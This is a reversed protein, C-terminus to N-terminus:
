LAFPEFVKLGWETGVSQKNLKSKKKKRESRFISRKKQKTTQVKKLVTPDNGVGMRSPFGIAM